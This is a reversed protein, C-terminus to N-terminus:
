LVKAFPARLVKIHNIIYQYETTTENLTLGITIGMTENM